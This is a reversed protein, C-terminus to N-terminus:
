SNVISSFLSLLIKSVAIALSLEKITPLNGISVGIYEVEKLALEVELSWLSVLTKASVTLGVLSDNKFPTRIDIFTATEVNKIWSALIKIYYSKHEEIIDYM